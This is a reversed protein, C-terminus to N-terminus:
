QHGILHTQKMSVVEISLINLDRSKGGFIVDNQLQLIFEKCKVLMAVVEGNLYIIVNLLLTDKLVVFEELALDHLLFLTEVKIVVVHQKSTADVHRM